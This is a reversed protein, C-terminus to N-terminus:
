REDTFLEKVFCKVKVIHQYQHHVFLILLVNDFTKGIEDFSLKFWCFISVIHKINTLFIKTTSFSPFYYEGVTSFPECIQNLFIGSM